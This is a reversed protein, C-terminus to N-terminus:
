IEGLGMSLLENLSSRIRGSFRIGDGQAIAESIALGIALRIVGENIKGSQLVFTKSFPHLMSVRVQLRRDSSAADTPASVDLWDEESGSEDLALDIEWNEGGIAVIM